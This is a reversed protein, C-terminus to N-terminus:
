TVANKEKSHCSIGFVINTVEELKKAHLQM